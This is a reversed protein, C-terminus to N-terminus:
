LLEEARTYKEPHALLEKLDVTTLYRDPGNDVWVVYVVEGTDVPLTYFRDNLAEPGFKIMTADAWFQQCRDCRYGAWSYPVAGGCGRHYLPKSLDSVPMELNFM